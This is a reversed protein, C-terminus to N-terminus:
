NSRLKLLAEQFDKVRVPTQKFWLSDEAEKAADEYRKAKIFAWTKPFKAPWRSGLQFNVSTLAVLFNIDNLGLEILQRNAAEFALQADHKLLEHAREATIKDGVKLNDEPKVAHGVGVTPVGVTDLYVTLNVGERAMIHAVALEYPPQKPSQWAMDAVLSNLQKSLEALQLAIETLRDM